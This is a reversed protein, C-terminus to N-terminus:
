LLTFLFVIAGSPFKTSTFDLERISLSILLEWQQATIIIDSSSPTVAFPGWLTLCRQKRIKQTLFTDPPTTNGSFIKNDAYPPRLRVILFTTPPTVHSLSPASLTPHPRQFVPAAILTFIQAETRSKPTPSFSYSFVFSLALLFFLLFDFIFIFFFTNGM